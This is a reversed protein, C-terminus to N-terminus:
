LKMQNKKKNTGNNTERSRTVNTESRQAGNLIEYFNKEGM